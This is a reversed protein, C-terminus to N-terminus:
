SRLLRWSPREQRRVPDRGLAALPCRGESDRACPDAGAQLLRAIVATHSEYAAVHLPTDNTKAVLLTAWALRRNTHYNILAEVVKRQGHYIATHLPVMGKLVKAAEDAYYCLCGARLVAWRRKWNRRRRGQKFLWGLAGGQLEIRPAARTERAKDSAM